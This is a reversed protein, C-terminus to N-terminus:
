VCVVGYVCVGCWEVGSWVVGCWGGGGGGGWVCVTSGEKVAQTVTVNIWDQLWVSVKLLKAMNLSYM